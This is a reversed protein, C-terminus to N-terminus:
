VFPRLKPIKLQHAFTGQNMLIKGSEKECECIADSTYEGFDHQCNQTSKVQCSDAEEEWAGTCTRGFSICYKDCTSYTSKKNMNAALVKCGDCVKEVDPWTSTDCAQSEGLLLHTRQLYFTTAM